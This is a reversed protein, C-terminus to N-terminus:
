PNPAWRVVFNDVVASDPYRARLAAALRDDIPRSFLPVMNIAVATVHREDLSRIVREDHGGAEELFDFLTGTPNRRQALYYVEPCDPAAYTYSGPASHADILAVLREYTSAFAPRSVLGTRPIRLPVTPWTDATRYGGDWVSVHGPAVATFGYLLFFGAAIAPRLGLRGGAEHSAAVVALVALIAIPAFFFIYLPAAYPVQVLSCLAAVCLLLWLHSRRRDEEANAPRKTLLVLCGAAVVCPVAYCVVLWIAVYVRGGHIALVAVASLLLAYVAAIARSSWDRAGTASTASTDPMLVLLWAIAAPLTQLPAPALTAFQLRKAPQVLVGSVLEGVSGSMVYPMVFILVPLAVGAAFPAVMAALRRLRMAVTGAGPIRWETVALSLALLAGPLTFQVVKSAGPVVHVLSMLGLVFAVAGTAVLVAYARHPSEGPSPPPAVAQQHELFVLFLFAAGVYYVGVIKITISLGGAIGAAVLWRLRRTETYRMLAAAGFIAFFLNYWSPMAAPYTPISWVVCLLTVVAAAVPKALRSAIYYVTPIWLLFVAFLALRLYSLQTGMVRFVAADFTALGGTYVDDFDRHPLEGQMVREAAHGLAGEDMPIWGRNLRAGTYAAAIIWVILLPLWRRLRSSATAAVTADAPMAPTATM